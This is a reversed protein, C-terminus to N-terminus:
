LERINGTRLYGNCLGIDQNISMKLILDNHDKMLFIRWDPTEMYAISNKLLPAYRSYRSLKAMFPRLNEV